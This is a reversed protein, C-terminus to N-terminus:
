FKNFFFKKRRLKKFQFMKEIQLLFGAYGVEDRFKLLMKFHLIEPLEKKKREKQM